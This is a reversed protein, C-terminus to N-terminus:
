CANLFYKNLQIEQVNTHQVNAEVREDAGYPTSFSAASREWLDLSLPKTEVISSFPPCLLCSLIKEEKQLAIFHFSPGAWSDRYWIM